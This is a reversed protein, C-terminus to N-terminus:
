FCILIAQSKPRDSNSHYYLGGTNLNSPIAAVVVVVVVHGLKFEHSQSFMGASLTSVILM